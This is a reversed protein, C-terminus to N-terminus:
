ESVEDEIGNTTPPQDPAIADFRTAVTTSVDRVAMSGDKGSVSLVFRREAGSDGVVSLYAVARQANSTDFRPLLTIKDGDKKISAAETKSPLEIVIKM